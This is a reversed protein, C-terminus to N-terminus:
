EQERDQWEGISVMYDFEDPGCRKMLTDLIARSKKPTDNPGAVYFPKGDRGYEFETACVGPDIDGFIRVVAKYDKHPKFGWQKAYLVGGEILKRACSPHITEFAEHAELQQIKWAYREPPLTAYFVDKVGLCYVDVLFVGIGINGTPMKKAVVINGIGLEALRVPVLCEHVPSRAAITIDRGGSLGGAAKFSILKVKRKAKKKELRRQRRRQNSAM